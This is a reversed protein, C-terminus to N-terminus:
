FLNMFLLLILSLPIFNIDCPNSYNYFIVISLIATICIFVTTVIQSVLDGLKKSLYGLIAGLLPLFLVLYEM